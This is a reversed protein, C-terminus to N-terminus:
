VILSYIYTHIHTHLIKGGTNYLLFCGSRYTNKAQGPALCRQGVLASQQNGMVGSIPVGDLISWNKVKGYIESCSRIEPLINSRISFTHLLVPDWNLTELNMLMTRSANTVDTAHIGGNIGGTINWLIWSDVTGFM